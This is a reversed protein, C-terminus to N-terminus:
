PRRSEEAALPRTKASRMPWDVVNACFLAWWVLVPQLLLRPGHYGWGLRSGGIAIGDVAHKINAPFVCVAYVALMVGAWWRFRTTVLGVAGFIECVGTFAVTYQPFPVWDPVIALFPAPTRLHLVGAALYAAAMAWRMAARGVGQRLAPAKNM